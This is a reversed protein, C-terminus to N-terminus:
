RANNNAEIRTITMPSYSVLFGGEFAIIDLRQMMLIAQEIDKIAIDESILGLDKKYAHILELPSFDILSKTKLESKHNYKHVLYKAVFESINFLKLVSEKILNSPQNLAAFIGDKYINETKIFGSL